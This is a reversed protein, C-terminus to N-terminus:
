GMITAGDNGSNDDSGGGTGGDGGETVVVVVMVVVLSPPHLFQAAPAHDAGLSVRPSHVSGKDATACQSPVRVTQSGHFHPSM